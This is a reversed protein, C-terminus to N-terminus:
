VQISINQYIEKVEKNMKSPSEIFNYFDEAVAIIELLFKKISQGEKPKEQFLDEVHKLAHEEFKLM